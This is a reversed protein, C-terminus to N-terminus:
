LIIHMELIECLVHNGRDARIVLFSKLLLMEM